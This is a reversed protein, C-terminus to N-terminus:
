VGQGLLERQAVLTRIEKCAKGYILSQYQKTLYTTMMKTKPSGHSSVATQSGAGLM